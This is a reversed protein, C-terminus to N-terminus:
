GSLLGFAISSLFVIWRILNFFWPVEDFNLIKAEWFGSENFFHIPLDSISSFFECYM